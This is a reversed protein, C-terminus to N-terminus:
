CLSSAVWWIISVMIDNRGSFFSTPVLGCTQSSAWTNRKKKKNNNEIKKSEFKLNPDLKINMCLHVLCFNLM